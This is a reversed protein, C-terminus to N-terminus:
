QDTGGQTDVTVTLLGSVRTAEFDITALRHSLTAADASDDNVRAMLVPGEALHILALVYPVAERLGPSLTRHLKSAAFITGRGSVTSWRLTRSGCWKCSTRPYHQFRQCDVCEQLDLRGAHLANWYPRSLDTAFEEGPFVDVSEHM